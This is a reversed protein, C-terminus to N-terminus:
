DYRFGLPTLDTTTFTAFVHARLSWLWDVLWSTQVSAEVRYQPASGDDVRVVNVTADGAPIGNWSVHYELRGTVVPLPLSSPAAPAAAAAILLSLAVTCASALRGEM